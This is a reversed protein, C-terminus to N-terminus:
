SLFENPNIGFREKFKKNFYSSSTIGVDYRAESLTFFTNNQLSLYAKQLRIELIFKVPSMGTYQKLLRTLQRQSYGVNSALEAVKFNEDSINEIIVEEIKRLLKKDSPELTPDLEKNQLNWQKRSEKNDLLNDIRAILENKNFPKVIYDDIGLNFGKIKDIELTKASILIFPIYKFLENENLKERLQFGDLKPMMIDSTILDFTQSEIKALAEVGNFATTCDYKESLIEVIYNCMEPNDEVILVKPKKSDNRPTFRHSLGEDKLCNKNSPQKAGQYNDPHTENNTIVSEIPLTFIFTSGKGLESEVTLTGSLLEAFEKALSLGIGIGGVAQSESSQYFREFIKETENYHIGQGFDTVKIALKEYELVADFVIKSNSPSYKIANSILNNLIKEMKKIDSNVSVSRSITSQYDLNIYKMEALSAFSFFIRKLTDELNFQINKITTKNKEFKLLELIENADEVVKKSNSLATNINKIAKDKDEFNELALDLNGLILTLPTRIEHAINGLFKTRLDNIEQENKYHSEAILKKRKQINLRWQFILFGILLIGLGSFIWITQTNKQQSLEFQQQAIEKDKQETKFKIDFEAFESSEKLSILSDKIKIAKEYIPFAKNYQKKAAYAKSLNELISQHNQLNPQELTLALELNNITEDYLGLHLNSEGIFLLAINKVLGYDISDSIHYAKQSSIKSEKYYKLEKYADGQSLYFLALKQYNKEKIVIEYAKNSYYKAEEFNEAVRSLNNYNIYRRNENEEPNIKKFIELALLFYKKAEKKLNVGRFADGVNNYADAILLSDNIKIAINLANKYEKLSVNLQDKMKYSYALLTARRFSFYNNEKNSLISDLHSINKLALDYKGYIAPYFSLNYYSVLLLSDNGSRKSYHIAKKTYYLSSDVNNQNKAIENFYIVKETESKLSDPVSIQAQTITSNCFIFFFCQISRFM